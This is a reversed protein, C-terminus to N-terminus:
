WGGPIYGDGVSEDWELETIYAFMVIHFQTKLRNKKQKEKKWNNWWFPMMMM